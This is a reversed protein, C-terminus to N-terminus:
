LANKYHKKLHNLIVDHENPIQHNQIDKILQEIVRGLAANHYGMDMIEKASIAINDRNVIYPRLKIYQTKFDKQYNIAMLECYLNIDLVNSFAVELQQNARSYKILSNILVRDQKNLFLKQLEEPNDKFLLVIRLIINRTKNLKDPDYHYKLLPKFITQYIDLVDLNEHNLIKLFEDAIREKSINKLLSANAFMAAKTKEEISFGYQSALRIGRLIRLADDHIRDQPNGIARIIGKQLDEIGGVLDLIQNEDNLLLANITFDRRLCDEKINTIFEVHDPHRADSYGQESRYTTIELPVEDIFVTVTGHKIGVNLQRFDQFIRCIEKPLANTTLDFDHPERHLYYDRVAGGVLYAEYGHKNLISLAKKYPLTKM